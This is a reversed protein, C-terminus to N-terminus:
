GDTVIASGRVAGFHASDRGLGGRKEKNISLTARYATIRKDPSYEVCNKKTKTKFLTLNVIFFPGCPTFHSDLLVM